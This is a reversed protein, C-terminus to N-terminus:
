MARRVAWCAARSEAGNEVEDDKGAWRREWESWM